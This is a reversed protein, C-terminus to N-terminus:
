DRYNIVGSLIIACILAWLPLAIGTTWLMKRKLDPTVPAGPEAGKVGDDECEWRGKVGWPLVAFFVVWWLIIFIVAAGALNM